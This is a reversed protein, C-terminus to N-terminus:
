LSYCDVPAGAEYRGGEVCLWCDAAALASAQAPRQPQVLTVEGSRGTRRALLFHTHGARLECPAALTAQRPEEARMGMCARMGPWALFRMGAATALPNGPLGFVPVQGDLLALLAPKGPRMAVGHFVVNADLRQLAQRLVDRKGVSASGSSVLARAGSDLADRFAQALKAPDDAVHRTLTVPLRREACWAALWAANVNPIEGSALPAGPPRVEGGTTFLALSAPMRVHLADVGAASLLAMHGAHLRQGVFDFTAGSAYEEGMRRLNRGAEVPQRLRLLRASDRDIVDAQELPLVADLPPPTHAGTAVRLACRAEPPPAEAYAGAKLEGAIALTVPSQLTAGETDHSCLAYGDMAANNFAPSALTGIVPRSAVAGLAQAVPIREEPGPKCADAIASRADSYPLRKVLRGTSARACYYLGM